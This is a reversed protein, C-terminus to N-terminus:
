HCKLAEIANKMMKKSVLHNLDTTLDLNTIRSRCDVDNGFWAHNLTELPKKHVFFCVPFDNMTFEENFYKVLENKL